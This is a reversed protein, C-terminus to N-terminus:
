REGPLYRACRAPCGLQSSSSRQVRRLATATHWGSARVQREILSVFGRETGALMQQDVVISLSNVARHCLCDSHQELNVDKTPQGPPPPPKQWSERSRVRAELTEGRTTTRILRWLELIHVAASRRHPNTRCCIPSAQWPRAHFEVGELVRPISRRSAPPTLIVLVIRSRTAM